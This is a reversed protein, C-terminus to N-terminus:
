RRAMLAILFGAGAAVLASQIPHKRIRDEITSVASQAAEQAQGALEKGQHLAEKAAENAKSAFRETGKEVDEAADEVRNKYDGASKSMTAM